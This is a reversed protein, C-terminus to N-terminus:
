NQVVRTERKQVVVLTMPFKVNKKARILPVSQDLTSAQNVMERGNMEQVVVETNLVFNALIEVVQTEMINEADEMWLFIAHVNLYLTSLQKHGILTNLGVSDSNIVSSIIIHAVQREMQLDVNEMRLFMAIKQFITGTIKLIELSILMLTV